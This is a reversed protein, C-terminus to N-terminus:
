SMRMVAQGAGMGPMSKAAAASASGAPHHKKHQDHQAAWSPAGVATLVLALSLSSVLKMHSEQDM